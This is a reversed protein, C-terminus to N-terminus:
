NIPHTGQVSGEVLEKSGRVIIADKEMKFDSELGGQYKEVVNTRKYSLCSYIDM